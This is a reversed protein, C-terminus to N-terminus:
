SYQISSTEDDMRGMDAQGADYATSIGSCNIHEYHKAWCNSFTRYSGIEDNWDSPLSPIGWDVWRGLEAFLPATPNGNFFRVWRTRHLALAAIYGLSQERV